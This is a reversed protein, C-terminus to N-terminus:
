AAVKKRKAPKDAAVSAELAAMLDGAPAVPEAKPRAKQKKGSAALEIAEDLALGYEDTVEVFDFSEAELTDILQSAMATLQENPVERAEHAHRVMAVDTWALREDYTCAHLVLCGTAPSFRIVVARTAKNMVTTGLLAKGSEALAHALLDYGQDGGDGPWLLYSKEFYLPDISGTDVATTLELRGDKAVGLDSTDVEVYRGDVEYAMVKDERAVIENGETCRSESTAPVMHTRCCTTASTRGSGSPVLPAYKVDVNVLGFGITLKSGRRPTPSAANKAAMRDEERESGRDRSGIGAALPV